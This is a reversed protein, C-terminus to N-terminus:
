ASEIQSQIAMLEQRKTEFSTEVASILEEARTLESTIFDLRKGVNVIADARDQKVLIPGTLKWISGEDELVSFENKVSENESKQSTLQRLNEHHTQLVLLQLYLLISYMGDRMENLEKVLAESKAILATSM